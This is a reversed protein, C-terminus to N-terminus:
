PRQGDMEVKYSRELVDIQYYFTDKWSFFADKRKYTVTVIWSLQAENPSICEPCHCSSSMKLQYQQQKVTYESPPCQGSETGFTSSHGEM